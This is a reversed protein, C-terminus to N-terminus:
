KILEKTIKSAMAGDYLGAHNDKLAKMVLGINPTQQTNIANDIIYEITDRLEEESMQRPLYGEYIAKEDIYKQDEVIAYNDDCTKINKKLRAIIGKDDVTFGNKEDNQVAGIFVTLISAKFKDGAKKAAIRDAKMKDYIM